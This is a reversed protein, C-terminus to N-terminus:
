PLPVDITCVVGSPEYVLRVTGNLERALGYQILRSGFGTRTPPVVPPGGKEEWLMVLRNGTSTSPTSWSIDIRGGPTSLAGYKLANTCLEHLTMSLSLAMPPSVRLDPGNMEIRRSEEPHGRYPASAQNIVELLNAGEWNERTLVDHGRALAFLRAEFASRAACLSDSDHSSLRQFSQAALSQVTALTNKVRHNLENILLRLHEEARKHETIDIQLGDWVCGGGALPRPTVTLRHWRVEGTKAHVMEIEMDFTKRTRYAEAEGAALRERYKPLVLNYLLSRNAKVDEVSVGTLRECNQSLYLLKRHGPTPGDSMQYVMCTPLNDTISSLRAESERLEDETRRRETWDRFSVGLGGNYPFVHLELFRGAIGVAEAEFSAPVGSAFITEYRRRLETGASEPFVDWISRGLMEQRPLGFYDGAAKNIYTFRWDQDLAYFSDGIGELIPALRAEVKTEVSQTLAQLLAEEITGQGARSPAPIVLDTVLKQLEATSALVSRSANM